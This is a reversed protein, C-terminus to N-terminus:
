KQQPAPGADQTRSGAPAQGEASGATSGPAPPNLQALEQKTADRIMVIQVDFTLDKGALPHNFDVVVSKPKVEAIKIPYPGNPTQVIFREGVAFTSGQPFMSKPFEKLAEKDYEGYADAAKITIKKKDGVKMGLLQKELAPIIKRAGVMFELPKDKESQGFVSGDALTGVYSMQVVKKDQVTAPACGVVSFALLILAVRGATLKMRTLM